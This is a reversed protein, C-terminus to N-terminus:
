CQDIFSDKSSPYEDFRFINSLAVCFLNDDQGLLIFVWNVFDEKHDIGVFKLNRQGAMEGYIM